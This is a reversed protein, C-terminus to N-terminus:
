ESEINAAYYAVTKTPVEKFWHPTKAPITIVDPVLLATEFTAGGRPDAGAAAGRARLVSGRAVRRCACGRERREQRRPRSSRAAVAGSGARGL